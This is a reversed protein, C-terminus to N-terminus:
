IGGGLKENLFKMWGETTRAGQYEVTQGDTTELLFTPFGQVNKKKLEEPSEDANVMRILCKKSGVNIAGKKVLEGFDPKVTRCHPCWDAYYMTFTNMDPSSSSGGQFGELLGRGFSSGLGYFAVLGLIGVVVTALLIVKLNM